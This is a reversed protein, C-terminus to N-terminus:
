LLVIEENIDFAPKSSKSKMNEDLMKVASEPHKLFKLKLMKYGPQLHQHKSCKHSFNRSESKQNM